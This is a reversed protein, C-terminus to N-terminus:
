QAGAPSLGSGRGLVGIEDGLVEQWLLSGAHYLLPADHITIGWVTEDGDNSHRHPAWAPALALDGAEWEFRQGGVISYGSGTLYYNIAASTHRHATHEEGPVIIGLFATLTKTTGQSVGTGPHYLVVVRRGNFTPDDNDLEDLYPKIDDFHWVLPADWTAEPRLMQAYTLLQAGDETLVPGSPAVPPPPPVVELADQESPELTEVEAVQYMSLGLKEHLPRDSFSFRVVPPSDPAAFHQHDSWGPTNFIDGPGWKILRGDIVSHGFGERVYNIVSHTHRHPRSVEGPALVSISVGIVFSNGLSEDTDAHALTVMRRGGNPSMEMLRAIEREIEAKRWVAAPPYKFGPDKWDARDIIRANDNM